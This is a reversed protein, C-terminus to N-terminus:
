FLTDLERRCNNYRFVQTSYISVRLSFAGGTFYSYIARSPKTESHQQIVSSVALMPVCHYHKGNTKCRLFSTRTNGTCNGIKKNQEHQRCQNM